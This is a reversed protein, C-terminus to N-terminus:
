FSFSFCHVPFFPFSHQICLLSISDLIMSFSYSQFIIRDYLSCILYCILISISFITFYITYKTVNDFEIEHKAKAYRSKSKFFHKQM